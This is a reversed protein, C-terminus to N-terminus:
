CFMLSNSFHVDSDLRCTSELATHADLQRDLSDLLLHIQAKLVDAARGLDLTKAGALNRGLDDLLAKALLNALFDQTFHQL